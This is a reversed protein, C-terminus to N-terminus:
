GTGKEWGRGEERGRADGRGGSIVCFYHKLRNREGVRSGGGERQRRGQRWRTPTERHWHLVVPKGGAGCGEV